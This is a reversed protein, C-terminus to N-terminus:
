RGRRGNRRGIHFHSKGAKCKFVTPTGQLKEGKRRLRYKMSTLAAQAEEKTEYADHRQCNTIADM